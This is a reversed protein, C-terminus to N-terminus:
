ADLKLSGMKTEHYLGDFFVGLSVCLFKQVAVEPEINTGCVSELEQLMSGVKSVEKFARTDSRGDHNVVAGHFMENDTKGNRWQFYLISDSGCAVAQM